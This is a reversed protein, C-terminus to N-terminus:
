ANPQQNSDLGLLWLLQIIIKSTTGKATIDGQTLMARFLKTPVAKKIERNEIIIKDWFLDIFARKRKPSAIRYAKDIGETLCILQEFIEANDQRKIEFQALDVKIRELEPKIPAMQRLYTESDIIKDGLQIEFNNRRAELKEQQALLTKKAIDIHGHNEALYKKAHFLIRQILSPSLKLNAFLKDIMKELVKTDINQQKNSHVSVKAPCHYYSKGKADHCEATYRRGCIGCYIFGNLLFLHKRKRDAFNNHQDLIENCRIFTGKDIIAPHKADPYIEGKYKMEGTYFIERLIVALGQKYIKKGNRSRLGEEYMHDSLTDLTFSGDSFLEATRKILPAEKEDLVIIRKELGSPAKEDIANRYGFRAQGPWWGAKVKELMTLSAKRGTLKPSLANVAALISDLFLGEPSDNLMPQNVSEVKTGSKKLLAKIAFHLSEDRALRDTDLVFVIEVENQKCFELMEQLGRRNPNSGSFGDDQFVALLTHEKEKAAIKIKSIQTPISCNEKKQEDTSVRVYAVCNM